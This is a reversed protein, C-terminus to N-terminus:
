IKALIFSFTSGKGPKSQVTINSGHAKLINKVLALGLGTGGQARTSSGDLQHFLEFIEDFQNPDFGIGTDKVEFYFNDLNEKLGIMVKGGPNTFKIANEILQSLVWTIKSRDTFLSTSTISISKSLIISKKEAAALNREYADEIILTPDVPEKIITLKNTESTSFLILNDILQELRTSARKIVELSNRQQLSLTPPVESLLLDVYGNIHTLPTRLEHSINSIFNAKLQTLESLKKYAIELEATREKVKNELTENANHLNTQLVLIQQTISQNLTDQGLMGLEVIIEGILPSKGKLRCQKQYELAQQLQDVTIKKQEVLIDGLRPILIEPTIAM